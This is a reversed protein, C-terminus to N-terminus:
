CIGGANVLGRSKRSTHTQNSAVQGPESVTVLTDLFNRINAKHLHVDAILYSIHETYSPPLLNALQHDEQLAKKNAHYALNVQMETYLAKIHELGKEIPELQLLLQDADVKYPVLYNRGKLM